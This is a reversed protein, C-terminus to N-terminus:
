AQDVEETLEKKLRDRARVLRKRVATPSIKMVTAIEDTKLGEYYHLEILLRDSESLTALADALESDAVSPGAYREQHEDLQVFRRWATRWLSVTRNITVRILWARRNEEQAFDPNKKVLALMVEQCIDEADSHSNTRAYAIRYVMPGYLEMVRHIDASSRLQM